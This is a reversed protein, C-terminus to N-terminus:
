SAALEPNRLVPRAMDTGLYRRRYRHVDDDPRAIPVSDAVRISLTKGISLALLRQLVPPKALTRHAKKWAFRYM